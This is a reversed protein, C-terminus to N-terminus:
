DKNKRGVADLRSAELNKEQVGESASYMSIGIRSWSEGIRNRSRDIEIQPPPDSNFITLASGMGSVFDKFVSM